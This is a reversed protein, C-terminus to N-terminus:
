EGICHVRGAADVPNLPPAAPGQRVVSGRAKPFHGSRIM